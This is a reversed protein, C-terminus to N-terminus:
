TGAKNAGTATTTCETSLAMWGAAEMVIEGYIDACKVATAESTVEPCLYLVCM